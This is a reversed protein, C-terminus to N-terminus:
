LFVIALFECIALHFLFALNEVRLCLRQAIQPLLPPYKRLNWNHRMHKLSSAQCPRIGPTFFALQYTLCLNHLSIIFIKAVYGIHGFKGWYPFSYYKANFIGLIIQENLIDLVSKIASQKVIMRLAM